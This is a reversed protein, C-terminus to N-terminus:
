EQKAGEVEEAEQEAGEVKELLQKINTIGYDKNLKEIIWLLTKAVASPSVEGNRIIFAGFKELDEQDFFFPVIKEHYVKTRFRLQKEDRPIRPKADSFLESYDFM